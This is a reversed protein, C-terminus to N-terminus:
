AMWGIWLGIHDLGRTLDMLATRAQDLSIEAESDTCPLVRLARRASYDFWGVKSALWKGMDTEAPGDLGSGASSFGSLFADLRGRDVGASTTAWLLASEVVECRPPCMAAEDWDLLVLGRPTCLVNDPKHDYHCMTWTAASREADHILELAAALVSLGEVVENPAITRQNALAALWREPDWDWWLLSGSRQSPRLSAFSQVAALQRGADAITAPSPEPPVGTGDVWSHVRVLAPRGYTGTLQEIVNDHVSRCPLAMGVVGGDHADCEFRAAEVLSERWLEDSTPYRFQKVVHRGEETQLRWTLNTSTDPLARWRIPEGLGFVDAVACFFAKPPRRGSVGPDSM